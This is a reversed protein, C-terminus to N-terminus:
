NTPQKDSQGIEANELFGSIERKLQKREDAEIPHYGRGELFLAMHSALREAVEVRAGLGANFQKLKEADVATCGEPSSWVNLRYKIGLVLRALWCRPAAPKNNTKNKM